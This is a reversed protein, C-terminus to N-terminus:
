RFMCWLHIKMSSCFQCEGCDDHNCVICDPSCVSMRCNQSRPGATNFSAATSGQRVLPAIPYIEGTPQAQAALPSSGLAASSGQRVVPATLHIEGTPQAQAATSGQRVLPATPHIEGNPQAQATFPLSGLAAISLERILPATLHIEGTSQAQAAQPSSGSAATSGQRVLPTTTHIEGTPQAQAALPSSGSAASSGQRVVIRTPHIEGTPQAEAALPSSGSAATSSYYISEVLDTNGLQCTFYYLIWLDRNSCPHCGNNRSRKMKIPIRPDAELIISGPGVQFLVKLKKKKNKETYLNFSM